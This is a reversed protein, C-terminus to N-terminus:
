RPQNKWKTTLISIKESPTLRAIQQTMPLKFKSQIFEYSLTPTNWITIQINKNKILFDIGKKYERNRPKSMDLQEVLHALEDILIKLSEKNKKDFIKSVINKMLELTMHDPNDEAGYNLSSEKLLPMTNTAELSPSVITETDEIGPSELNELEQDNTHATVQEPQNEITPAPAGIEEAILPSNENEGQTSQAPEEETFDFIENFYDEIDIPNNQVPTYYNESINKPDIIELVNTSTPRNEDVMTFFDPYTEASRAPCLSSMITTIMLGSFFIVRNKM